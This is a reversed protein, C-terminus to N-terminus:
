NPFVPAFQELNKPEAMLARVEAKAEDYAQSSVQKATGAKEMFYRLMNHMVTDEDKNDGVVARRALLYIAVMVVAAGMSAGTKIGWYQVDRAKPIAQGDAIDKRYWKVWKLGYEASMLEDKAKGIEIKNAATEAGLSEIKAKAAAIAKQQAAVLSELTNNTDHIKKLLSEKPFKSFLLPTLIYQSVRQSFVPWLGSYVVLSWAHVREAPTTAMALKHGATQWAYFATSYWWNLWARANQSLSNDIAVGNRVVNAGNYSIYLEKTETLFKADLGLEKGGILNAVEVSAPTNILGLLPNEILVFFTKDSNSLVKALPIVPVIYGAVVLPKQLPKPVHKEFGVLVRECFKEMGKAFKERVGKPAPAEAAPAAAKPADAAAALQPMAVAGTVQIVVLAVTIERLWRKM